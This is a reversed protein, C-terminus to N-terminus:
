AQELVIHTERDIMFRLAVYILLYIILGALGWFQAKFFVFVQTLFLSVMVSREFMKFASLRSKIFLTLGWLALGAALLSSTLYAYDSFTIKELEGALRAIIGINLVDWHLMKLAVLVFVYFLNFAVQASFFAIIVWRFWNTVAINRYFSGLRTRLRVYHGPESVPVLGIKGLAGILELVLPDSQDCKALYETVREKEEKDFDSMAVEELEHVANMLYELRSYRVRTQINRVILFIVVFTVYIIAVAPQYFYDNDQTIFKGVEDIFAGFGIGGCIVGVYQAKKGLFMSLSIIGVLMFVGGWLMHAIHLDSNGLQPYGTIALYARIALISAVASVLFIELYTGAEINRIFYRRKKM